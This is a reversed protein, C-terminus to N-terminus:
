TVVARWAARWTSPGVIGDNDLHKQHQFRDVVVQTEPGFVGDVAIRWGREALRRQFTRVDDGESGLELYRGPWPEMGWTPLHCFGTISATTRANRVCTGQHDGEITCVVGRLGVSEVLCAHRDEGVIAIDGRRPHQDFRGAAEFAHRLDAVWAFGRQSRPQIGPMAWHGRDDAFGADVCAKSVAIVAWPVAGQGYWRTLANRHSGAPSESIELFAQMARVVAEASPWLRASAVVQRVPPIAVTDDFGGQANEPLTDDVVPAPQGYGSVLLRRMEEAMQANL